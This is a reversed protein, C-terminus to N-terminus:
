LLLMERIMESLHEKRNQPARPSSITGLSKFRRYQEMETFFLAVYFLVFDIDKKGNLM